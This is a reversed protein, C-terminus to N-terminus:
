FRAHIDLMRTASAEDFDFEAFSLEKFEDGILISDIEGRELARRLVAKTKSSREM